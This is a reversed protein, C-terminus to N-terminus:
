YRKYFDELSTIPWRPLYREKDFKDTTEHCKNALRKLAAYGIMVANDTCYKLPAIKLSYENKEAMEILQKRFYENASVGGSVILTNSYENTYSRYRFIALQLKEMLHTFAAQQMSAAIDCATEMSIKASSSNSENETFTTNRLKSIMRHLEKKSVGNNQESRVVKLVETKLGSFSFTIEEHRKGKRLPIAFRYKDAQGKTALAEILAGGSLHTNGTFTTYQEENRSHKLINLAYETLDGNVSEKLLRATKDFAEGISDDETSGIIEYDGIGKSFVMMCHGGSALLALYPFPVDNNSFMLPMLLHAELHHIPICPINMKQSWLTAAEVGVSLCPPLGPGITVAIADIEKECKVFNLAREIMGNLTQKHMNAMETPHVGGFHEVLEHHTIVKEFLIKPPSFGDQQLIAVATDDCSTEISLIRTMQITSSQEHSSPSSFSPQRQRNSLSYSFNKNKLTTLLLKSNSNDQKFDNMINKSNQTLNKNFKTIESTLTLTRSHFGYLCTPNTSLLFELSSFSLTKGFKKSSSILIHSLNNLPSFFPISLRWSKRM